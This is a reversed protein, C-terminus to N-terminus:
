DRDKENPDLWPVQKRLSQAWVAYGQRNLHLQDALFLDDRLTGDEKHQAGWFDVWTAGQEEVISKLKANLSLYCKSLHYRAPSAKPAVVVLRTAPLKQALEQLLRSAADLIIPEAVGDFLDNDGEYVLLVDPQLAYILPERLRWLDEFCSGGFGANVVEYHAFVTDTQPWFRFSSSGVLVLREQDGQLLSAERHVRDIADDYGAGCFQALSSSAM